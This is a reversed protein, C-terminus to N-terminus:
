SRLIYLRIAEVISHFLSSLPCKQYVPLSAALHKCVQYNGLCSICCLVSGAKQLMGAGREERCAESNALHRCVQDLIKLSDVWVASSCAEADGLHSCM